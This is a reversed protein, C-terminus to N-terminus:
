GLAACLLEGILPQLAAAKGDLYEGSAEDMYNCQALELQIAEVSEEPRAYHRTIYGGKFRGNSVWSWASQAGLVAELRQQTAPHCSSGAATGLNLDPLRGEFLFPVRSRSSHGEWLVARGHEARLRLLECQLEHHYPHWYRDLRTAIDM